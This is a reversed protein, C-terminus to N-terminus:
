TLQFEPSSLAVRWRVQAIGEEGLKETFKPNAIADLTSQEAMYIGCRDLIEDASYTLANEIANYDISGIIHSRRLMSDPTLWRDKPWGAVNPPEYLAQGIQRAQWTDKPDLKAVAVLAAYVEFGSRPRAYHTEIMAPDSVIREVLPMIELDNALWWKGLEERRTDDAEAGIIHYWVKGAVRQATLPDDCLRDVIKPLDWDREEGLYSVTGTHGNEPDYAVVFDNDRDLRWGAMALAGAKVDAETYNGIGFTFLEMLERSLNENPNEAKSRDADLYVMLAGDTVFAQLLERFNGLAHTRITSLQRGILEAEGAASRHTTLHTHWFFTMREHIGSPKSVIKQTWWEIADESDDFRPVDDPDVFPVLVRELMDERGRGALEEVAAHDVRLSTRRVLQAAELLEPARVKM